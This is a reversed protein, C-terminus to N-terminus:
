SHCRVQLIHHNAMTAMEESDASADVKADIETSSSTYLCAGSSTWVRLVGKEGATMFCADDPKREDSSCGPFPSDGDLIVLAELAEFVPITKRSRGKSVDWVHVIKDRGGSLLLRGDDAFCLAPVDSMHGKLQAIRESKELNWVNIVGGACASYLRLQTPHFAVAGVLGPSGKFNHTCYKKTADWVQVAGRSTGLAVLTSTPDFAAVCVPVDGNIRWSHLCQNVTVKEEDLKLTDADPERDEENSSPLLKSLDWVRALLSKTCTVLFQNDPSLALTTLLDEEDEVLSHVTRGSDINVINVAAGDPCFLFREDCSVAVKGGSYFSGIRRDVDYSTKLRSEAEM